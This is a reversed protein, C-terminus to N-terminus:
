GHGRDGKQAAGRAGRGDGKSGGRSGTGKANKRRQAPYTYETCQALAQYGAPGVVVDHVWARRAVRKFKDEILVAPLRCQGCLEVERIKGAFRVRTGVELESFCRTVDPKVEPVVPAACGCLTTSIHHIACINLM